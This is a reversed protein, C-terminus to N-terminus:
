FFDEDYYCHPARTRIGCNATILQPILQWFSKLIETKHQSWYKRCTHWTPIQVIDRGTKSSGILIAPELFFPLSNITLSSLYVSVPALCLSTPFLFWTAPCSLLLVLCLRPKAHSYLTVVLYLLLSFMFGLHPCLQCSFNEGKPGSFTELSRWPTVGRSAPSSWVGTPRTALLAHSCSTSSLCCPHQQGLGPPASGTDGCM